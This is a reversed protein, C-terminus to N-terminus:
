YFSVAILTMVVNIAGISVTVYQVNNNDVGASQFIRDAYYFVQLLVVATNIHPWLCFVPIGNQRSKCGLVPACFGPFPIGQNRSVNTNPDLCLCMVRFVDLSGKVPCSWKTDLIHTSSKTSPLTLGSYSSASAIDRIFPYEQTRRELEQTLM